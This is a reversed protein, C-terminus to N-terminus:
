EDELEEGLEKLIWAEYFRAVGDWDSVEKSIEKQVSEKYLQIGQQLVSMMMFLMLPIWIVAEVTFSGKQMRM